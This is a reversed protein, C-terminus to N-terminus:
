IQEAEEEKKMELIELARRKDERYRDAIREMHLLVMEVAREEDSYALCNESKTSLGDNWDDKPVEEFDVEVSSLSNLNYREPFNVGENIGFADTCINTLKRFTVPRM